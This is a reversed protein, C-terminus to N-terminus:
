KKRVTIMEAVKHGVTKLVKHLSKKSPAYYVRFTGNGHKFSVLIRKVQSANSMNWCWGLLRYTGDCQSFLGYLGNVVLDSEEETLPDHTFAKELLETLPTVPATGPVNIYNSFKYAHSM